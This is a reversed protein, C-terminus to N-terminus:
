QGWPTGMGYELVVGRAELEKVLDPEAVPVTTFARTKGEEVERSKLMGRILTESIVM